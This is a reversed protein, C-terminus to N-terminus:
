DEGNVDAPLTSMGAPIDVGENSLVAPGLQRPARQYVGIRSRIGGFNIHSGSAAVLEWQEDLAKGFDDDGTCGGWGEGIYILRDGTYARLADFAFPTDYDPWCLMLLRDPHEAIKEVSGLRVPHFQTDSLLGTDAWGHSDYAVTDVGAQTLQWAWYGTGAGLEIVKGGAVHKALFAIDGPSPIAFAYTFVLVDRNAPFAPPTWGEVDPSSWTSQPLWRVISWYPNVMGDPAGEGRLHAALPKTPRGLVDLVTGGWLERLRAEVELPDGIRERAPRGSQSFM